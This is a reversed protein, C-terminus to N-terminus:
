TPPETFQCDSRKCLSEMICVDLVIIYMSVDM